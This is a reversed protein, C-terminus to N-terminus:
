VRYMHNHTLKQPWGLNQPHSSLFTQHFKSLISNKKPFIAKTFCKFDHVHMEYWLFQNVFTEVSFKGPKEFNRIRWSEILWVQKKVSQFSFFFTKLNFIELKRSEEWNTPYTKLHNKIGTEIGGSWDFSTKKLVFLFWIVHEETNKDEEEIGREIM